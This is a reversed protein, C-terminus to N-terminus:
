YEEKLGSFFYRKTQHNYKDVDEVTAIAGYNHVDHLGLAPKSMPVGYWFPIWCTGLDLAGSATRSIGKIPGVIVGMLTGLGLPANRSWHLPQTLIEVWGFAANSLGRAFMGPVKKLYNDDVAWKLVGDKRGKGTSWDAGAPEQAMTNIYGKTTLVQVPKGPAAVADDAYLAAPALVFSLACLLAILKKM